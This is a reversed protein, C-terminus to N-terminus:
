RPWIRRWWSRASMKAIRRPEASIRMSSPITSLRSSVANLLATQVRPAVKVGSDLSAMLQERRLPTLADLLPQRWRWGDMRLLLSLVVVPEYILLQVVAEPPADRLVCHELSPEQDLTSIAMSENTMFVMDILPESPIGLEQLEQLLCKMSEFEAAPLQNLVWERDAHPLGHLYLAAKRAGDM